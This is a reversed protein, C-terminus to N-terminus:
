SVVCGTESKGQSAKPNIEPERVAKIEADTGTAQLPSLIFMFFAGNGIDAIYILTVLVKTPTKSEEQYAVM